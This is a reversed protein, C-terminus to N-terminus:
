SAKSIALSIGFNKSDSIRHKKTATASPNSLISSVNEFSPAQQCTDGWRKKSRTAELLSRWSAKSPTTV